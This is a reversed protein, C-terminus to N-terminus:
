LVPDGTQAAADLVYQPVSVSDGGPSTGLFVTTGVLFDGGYPRWGLLVALAHARVNVLLGMMKGEENVYAHWPLQGEPAPQGSSSVAEIYGGVLQQFWALPDVTVTVLRATTDPLIVLAVLPSTTTM